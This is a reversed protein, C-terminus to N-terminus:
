RQCSPPTAFAPLLLLMLFREFSIIIIPLRRTIQKTYPSTVARRLALPMVM